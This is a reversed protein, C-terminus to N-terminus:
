CFTAKELVKRGMKCICDGQSKRRIRKLYLLENPTLQNDKEPNILQEIVLSKEKKLDKDIEDFSTQSGSYYEM